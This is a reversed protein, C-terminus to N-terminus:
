SQMLIQQTLTPVKPALQAFFEPGNTPRVYDRKQEGKDCRQEVDVSVEAGRFERWGYNLGRV